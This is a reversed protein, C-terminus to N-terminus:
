QTLELESLIKLARRADDIGAGRVSFSAMERLRLLSRAQEMGEQDLQLRGLQRRPTDGLTAGFRICLAQWILEVARPYDGDRIAGRAEAKIDREEAREESSGPRQRLARYLTWISWALHAGLALVVASLIAMTFWFTSPDTSHLETFLDDIAVISRLVSQLGTPDRVFPESAKIQELAERVQEANLRTDMM